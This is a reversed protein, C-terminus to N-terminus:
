QFGASRAEPTLDDMHDRTIDILACPPGDDGPLGHAAYRRHFAADRGAKGFRACSRVLSHYLGKSSATRHRMTKGVESFYSAIAM